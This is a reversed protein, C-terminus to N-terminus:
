EYNCFGPWLARVKKHLGEVEPKRNDLGAAGITPAVSYDKKKWERLSYNGENRLLSAKFVYRKWLKRITSILPISGSAEQIGHRRFAATKM